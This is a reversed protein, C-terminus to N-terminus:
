ALPWDLGAEQVECPGVQHREIDMGQQWERAGLLFLSGRFGLPQMTPKNGTTLSEEM